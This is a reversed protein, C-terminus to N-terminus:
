RGFLQKMIGDMPTEQDPPPPKLQDQASPAPQAPASPAPVTSRSGLGQQLLNGLTEGLKGGLQDSMGSSLGGSGGSQGFLGKGMEKLKAYAADPNDLMGAVEPYIRPEAWPGEIAVPIGLGVPNAASGQGETTMVLKPEVRFALTKAPLDVTGTGTMRVLPGALTLDATTAQGQEVRFSASLQTLDTTQDRGEQWGSLTGSTLSRIMKAINLDRIAGDQFVVFATGSLASMIARQSAGSARFALKAQMKGDIKDFDALGSLLPLARVGALDSRLIYAPNNASVDITLEGDAEGGYVGLHSFQAKLVGGGLAADVAAPAFRADGINLEAASIRIQADVYNLGALNIPENSWPKGPQSTVPKGRSSTGLDFRQFDLDVKVLPKSSLDASAWGNFQVGDLTGSLGNIALVLGNARVQAKASLSRGLLGPSDLTLEVPINQREMSGAPLAAKIEFKLPQEGSRASGTFTVQRDAGIVADADIGDIRNEVRDRLNTFVVAGDVIKVHDISFDNAAADGSPTAPKPANDIHADRERRLPVYLVPKTVVLERIQPHGSLVSRLPLDAQVSGITHRSDADRAKPDQVTIDNLTVNLSPWIGLRTAGSVVIRYGTEREVRDQIASTMFGSPIGIMLLLAAVVIVAAVAGAIKLARMEVNWIPLAAAVDVKATFGPV